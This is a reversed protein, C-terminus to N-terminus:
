KKKKDVKLPAIKGVRGWAAFLDDAAQANIFKRTDDLFSDVDQMTAHPNDTLFENLKIKAMQFNANTVDKGAIPATKFLGLNSLKREAPVAYSTFTGKMADLKAMSNQYFFSNKLGNNKRDFRAEIERTVALRQEDSLNEAKDRENLFEAKIHNIDDDTKGSTKTEILRIMLDSYTKKQKDSLVNKALNRAQDEKRAIRALANGRQEVSIKGNMYLGNVTERDFGGEQELQAVTEAGRIVNKDLMRRVKMEASDADSPEILELEKVRGKDNRQSFRELEQRLAGIGYGSLSNVYANVAAKSKISEITVGPDTGHYKRTFETLKGHWQVASAVDGSAVAQKMLNEADSINNKIADQRQRNVAATHYLGATEELMASGKRMGRASLKKNDKLLASFDNRFKEADAVAEEETAFHNMGSMREKAFNKMKVLEMDDTDSDIQSKLDLLAGAAGKLDDAARGWSESTNNRVLPLRYKVMGQSVLNAEAAHGQGQFVKNTRIENM